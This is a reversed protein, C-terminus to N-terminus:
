WTNGFGRKIQSIRQQKLTYKSGKFTDNKKLRDSEAVKYATKVDAKKMRAMLLGIECNQVNGMM